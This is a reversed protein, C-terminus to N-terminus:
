AWSQLSQALPNEILPKLLSTDLRTNVSLLNNKFSTVQCQDLPLRQNCQTPNRVVSYHNERDRDLKKIEININEKGITLKVGSLTPDRGQSIVEKIENQRMNYAADYNQPKSPADTPGPGGVHYNDSYGERQTVKCDVVITQYGNGNQLVSSAVPLLVDNNETTERHTTIPIDFPDYVRGSPQISQFHGMHDNNETTQKITPRAIQNPDYVQGSTQVPHFYGTHDNNETTQKITPRASQNPDYVQGSPQVPHFYGTHDNNETTQKITPRTSQNPDYVQGSPQVPHFYGTHDNNETTQKITPRAIQNPDYVQGRLQSPQFQGARDNNETTQKITSRAIQNPDYVQGRLQSPQFQGARDNNETTQKITPRAIQNPDHVPGRLQSPQFQGTRDNNETTQKINPRAIQNPDHVPGRLQSPQFQGTRDNNETTQKITPRTSQNPDHVVGKGFLSKIYGLPNFANIYFQKRTTKAKDQPNVTHNPILKQRNIFAHGKQQYIKQSESRENPRNEYTLQQNTHHRKADVSSANRFPSIKFSTKNSSKFKPYLTSKRNKSGTASTAIGIIPKSTMRNTPKKIVASKIMPKRYAGLTVFNREGNLNKVLLEPRNKFQISQMPRKDIADKGRIIRNMKVTRPNVYLQESTKPIFRLPNHHGGSPRATYGDNLGPGVRIQEFPLENNRINCGMSYRDPDRNILSTYSLDQKVPAFLMPIEKKHQDLKFDGTYLELKNSLLRNEIDMNQKKIGGFFPVMNNHTLKAETMGGTQLSDNRTILHSANRTVDNEAYLFRPPSGDLGGSEVSNNQNLISLDNPIPELKKIEPTQKQPKGTIRSLEKYILNRDYSPNKIRRSQTESLNNFFRPIINTNIPDFSKEFNSIVKEDEIERIKQYCANDYINQGGAKGTELNKDIITQSEQLTKRPQKGNKNLLYGSILLGIGLYLPIDM